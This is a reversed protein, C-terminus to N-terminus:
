KKHIPSKVFVLGIMVIPFAWAGRLMHLTTDAYGPYTNELTIKHLIMVMACLASIVLAVSIGIYRSRICRICITGIVAGIIALLGGIIFDFM